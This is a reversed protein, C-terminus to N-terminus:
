TPPGCNAGVRIEDIYWGQEFNEGLKNTDYTIRLSTNYGNYASTDLVILDWDDAARPGAVQDCFGQPNIGLECDVLTEYTGTFIEIRKNDWGMPNDGGEDVHWSRFSLTDDFAIVGTVVQSTENELGPYPTQRNGDTGFAASSLLVPAHTSSPTVNYVGWDSGWTWTALSGVGMFEFDFVLECDECAGGLCITLIPDCVSGPNSDCPPAAGCFAPDSLPDICVGDCEVLGGDCPSGGTTSGLETTAGTSSESSSSGDTSTSSSTNFATTSMSGTTTVDSTTGDTSSSSTSPSTTSTTPEYTTTGVSMTTSGMTTTATVESDGQAIPTPPVACGSVLAALVVLLWEPGDNTAHMMPVNRLAVM